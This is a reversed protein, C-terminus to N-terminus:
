NGFRLVPVMERMLEDLAAAVKLRIASAYDSKLSLFVALYLPLLARLSDRDLHLRDCAAHVFDALAEEPEIAAASLGPAVRVPEAGLPEAAELLPGLRGRGIEVALVRRGEDALVRALAAAVSTKGVGGKGTTVVLRQAALPLHGSM